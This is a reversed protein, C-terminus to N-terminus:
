KLIYKKGDKIYVGKGITKVEQGSLNYIKTNTPKQPTNVTINDIATSIEPVEVTIDYLDRYSVNSNKPDGFEGYSKYVIIFWYRNSNNIPIEINVNKASNKPVSIETDINTGWSWYGEQTAPTLCYTRIADNYDYQGNNRVNVQLKVVNDKVVGNTLNTVKGNTFKLTHGKAAAITITKEAIDDFMENWQQMGEDWEWYRRSIKIINEGVKSAKFYMELQNSGDQEVEFQRGGLKEDNVRLFLADNFFSGYNEINAKVVINSGKELKGSVEIEGELDITPNILQIINDNIVAVISYKDANINKNWESKGVERSVNTIFYTGNPLSPVNCLHRANSYGWTDGLVITNQSQVYRLVNNQDFVGAGLEFNVSDGTQNRTESYYEVNFVNNSKYLTTQNTYISHTTMVYNKEPIVGTNPQANIIAEQSISYGDTSASAGIGSNNGPDLVSLLFYGNCSGGWGWNVHYLGEKDYGDIVFAHGGKITSGAYYVPRNQALENYILSDWVAARFDSRNILKTAADYDFYKKLAIAVNNSFAASGGNSIINYDMLVSVGCLQMLKAVANKQTTTETGTYEDKINEWNITAQSISSLNLNLTETKYGPITATTKTPYKYYNIVQAMATAVCGTVTRQNQYTPCYINYPEDQNWLSKLLPSISAHEKITAVTTRDHATLYRLQSEYNQLWAKMNDPMDATNFTGEDAYGLVVPTRDDGSIIVFGEQEGINFIYYSANTSANSIDTAMGKAALRMSRHQSLAYRSNIFQMAKQQAQETTISAAFTLQCFFACVLSLLYKEM